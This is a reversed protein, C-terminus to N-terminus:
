ARLVPAEIGTGDVLIDAREETRDQAFHIEEDRRWQLWQERLQVGDRDLGRTLRLDSPASVWVLLTCLDAHARFGSGVGELVLLPGPDVVVTEAFRARHWDFRRYCGPEGSALPGLLAALQNGVTALGAWGDYLDDMHVLRAGEGAEDVCAKGLSSKGSGGPGDICVLRGGGLTPLRARAHRLVFTAADSPSVM